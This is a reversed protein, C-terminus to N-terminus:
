PKAKNNNATEFEMKVNNGFNGPKNWIREMHDVLMANAAIYLYM